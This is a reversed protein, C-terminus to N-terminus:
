DENDQAIEIVNRINYDLDHVANAMLPWIENVFEEQSIDDMVGMIGTIRTLPERIQHANYQILDRLKKNSTALRANSEALERTRTAIVQEQENVLKRIVENDRRKQRFAYIAIGAIILLLGVGALSAMTANKERKLREQAVADKRSQEAKVEAEKKEYEFKMKLEMLKKESESNYMSDRAAVFEMYYKKSEKYNNLHEYIESLVTCNDKIMKISSSQHAFQYSKLCYKEAEKYKGMLNYLHGLSNFSSAQATPDEMEIRIRLAERYELEAQRYNKNHQYIDGINDTANALFQLDGGNRLTDRSQQYYNLAQDYNKQNFYVLGINNLCGGTGNRDKQQKRIALAAFYNKLAEDFNNKINYINGINNYMRGIGVSDKLDTYIKMAEHYNKLAETFDGKIKLGIGMTNLALAKGRINNINTALTLAKGAYLMTSDASMNMFLKALENLTKLRTTDDKFTPFVKKLSDIRAQGKKQAFAPLSATILILFFLILKKMQPPIPRVVFYFLQAINLNNSM